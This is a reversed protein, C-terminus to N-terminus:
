ENLNELIHQGQKARVFQMLVRMTRLFDILTANGVSNMKLAQHGEKLSTWYGATGGTSTGGYFMNVLIKPVYALKIKNDKLIRVMFEYDAAGKYETRYCGYKQYVEKRLFLTPHGPMWGSKISGQGMKWYRVVKKDSSYVLDAHVGDYYQDADNMTTMLDSIATRVTFRDNFFAIVDGTALKLGQNMADYIGSDKTSQCIINLGSSKQYEEIIDLTGDTSIGDKVIVELDPYDQQRISELTDTINKRCNYTTLILSVKQM